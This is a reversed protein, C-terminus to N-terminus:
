EAPLHARRKEEAWRREDRMHLIFVVVAPAAMGLPIILLSFFTSWDM